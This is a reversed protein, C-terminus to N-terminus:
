ILQGNLELSISAGDAFLVAFHIQWDILKYQYNQNQMSLKKYYILTSPLIKKQTKWM